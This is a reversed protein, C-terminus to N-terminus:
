APRPGRPILITARSGGGPRPELTVSARDQYLTRLREAINTLGHGMHTSGGASPGLGDDEVRLCLREGDPHAYIWLHGQGTKPALGHKLANEVLPQLILSPISEGAVLPSVDMEVRLREGFRAEEIYLYTRLFEMEDRVSTFARSSHALVHRFVGALRVTMAEARPPDRVILDAITNLSNFLFHPNVQARLARLEAETVQQLLLAERSQREVTEREIRLGDLRQGCLAAIGRLYNLDLTVLGPRAGGPTVLLAHSVKGASSVPVLLEVNRIPLHARLPGSYALEALEGELLAPPCEESPLQGIGIIKAANLELPDRAAAETADIVESEEQLRPLRAALNRREAQYDPSHFLWRSVATGLREDLFTFSLLLANAVVVILFVHIAWPSTGQSGIHNLLSSQTVVALLSAWIGALLIRVGYRIFVDAYRFRAFLLFACLVVLLILHAGISPLSSNSPSRSAITLALASGLVAVVLARSPQFIGRPTSDRRLCVAAGLCLLVGANWAMVQLIAGFTIREPGGFFRLCLLVAIGASTVFAATRLARAASQQRASTAFTRWIALIPIPFAGAASYQIVRALLAFHAAGSGASFATSALGGASWMLACLAFGVNARPTGPLKAARLTLVLLLATILLGTTFIILDGAVTGSASVIIRSHM